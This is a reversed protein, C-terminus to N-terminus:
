GISMRSGGGSLGRRQARARADAATTSSISREAGAAERHTAQHSPQDREAPISHVPTASLIDPHRGAGDVAAHYLMYGFVSLLIGANLLPDCFSRASSAASRRSRRCSSRFRSARKRRVRKRQRLQRDRDPRNAHAPAPERSRERLRPLREARAQARRARAGGRCLHLCLM